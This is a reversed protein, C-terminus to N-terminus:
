ITKCIAKQIHLFIETLIGRLSKLKIFVGNYLDYKGQFSQIIDYLQQIAHRIISLLQM